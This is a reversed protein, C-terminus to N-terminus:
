LRSFWWGEQTKQRKPRLPFRRRRGLYCYHEQQAAGHLCGPVMFQDSNKLPGLRFCEPVSPMENGSLTGDTVAGGEMAPTHGMDEWVAGLIQPVPPLACVNGGACHDCHGDYYRIRPNDGGSSSHQHQVVRIGAASSQPPATRHSRLRTQHYGHRRPGPLVQCHVLEM